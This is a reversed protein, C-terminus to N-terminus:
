TKASKLDRMPERPLPELEVGGLPAFIEWIREALNTRLNTKQALASKLIERRRSWRGGTQRRAFRSSGSPAKKSTEFPLAGWAILSQLARLWASRLSSGM